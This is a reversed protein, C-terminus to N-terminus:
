EQKHELFLITIKIGFLVILFFIVFYLVFFSLNLFQPHFFYSQFLKNGSKKLAVIAALTKSNEASTDLYAKVFALSVSYFFSSLLFQKIGEKYSNFYVILASGAFVFLAMLSFYLTGSYSAGKPVFKLLFLLLFTVVFAIEAAVFEKVFSM